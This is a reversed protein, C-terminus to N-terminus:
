DWDSVRPSGQVQPSTAWDSVPSRSRLGLGLRVVTSEQFVSVLGTQCPSVQVQPSTGDSVQSESVQPCTGTQVGLSTGPGSSLDWDSVTSERVM